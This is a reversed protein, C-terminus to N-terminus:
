HVKPQLQGSLCGQKCKRALLKGVLGFSFKTVGPLDYLFDGYITLPSTDSVVNHFTCEFFSRLGWIWTGTLFSYWQSCQLDGSVVLLCINVLYTTESHYYKFVRSCKSVIFHRHWCLSILINNCRFSFTWPKYFPIFFRFVLNPIM